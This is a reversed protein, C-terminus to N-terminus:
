TLVISWDKTDIPLDSGNYFEIWEDASGSTGMWDIENIVVNNTIALSFNSWIFFGSMVLLCFIIKSRTKNM